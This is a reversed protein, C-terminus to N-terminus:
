KDFYSCKYTKHKILTNDDTYEWIEENCLRNYNDKSYKRILRNRNDYERFFKKDHKSYITPLSNDPEYEYEILYATNEQNTFTRRFSKIASFDVEHNYLFVYNEVGAFSIEDGDKLQICSDNNMRIGNVFTGNMAELNHLYIINIDKTLFEAHIRAVADNNLFMDCREKNRGVIAKGKNLPVFVLKNNHTDILILEALVSTLNCQDCVLNNHYGYYEKRQGCYPCIIWEKIVSERNQSLIKEATGDCYPCDSFREKNYFHGQECRTLLM